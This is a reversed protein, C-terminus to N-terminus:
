KKYNCLDRYENEAVIQRTGCDDCFYTTIVQRQQITDVTYAGGNHHNCVFTGVEKWDMVTQPRKELDTHMQKGCGTCLVKDQEVVAVATNEPMQPLPASDSALAPVFLISMMLGAALISAIMKKM